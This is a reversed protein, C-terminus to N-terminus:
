PTKCGTNLNHHKVVHAELSTKLIINEHPKVVQTDLLHEEYPTKYMIDQCFVMALVDIQFTIKKRYIDCGALPPFALRSM